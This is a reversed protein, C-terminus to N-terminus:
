VVIHLPPDARAAIRGDDVTVDLRHVGLRIGEVRVSMHSLAPGVGVSGGPVDPAIRLLTRLLQLPAAASWAQPSCAVPYPVPTPVEDRGYGGYLEPLRWGNHEAAELLGTILADADATMGYRALGEIALATDHPWVSGRHYSMPDYGREGAGLTRIGWGANMAPSALMQAVAQGTAHDLAGVWLAHGVNSSAVQLPRDAGDIAMALLRRDANWFREALQARLRDARDSLGHAAGADGLSRELAALEHLARWHYSQVEVLALPGEAQSGDAHVMADSSDKWGQNRLAHDDTDYTLFGDQNHLSNIECWTIAARAAPLLDRIREAPAGWRYVEGLLMVFLPTADVSGYYPQWPELGFIGAHGTRLEHLIKGADEGTAADTTTGQYAALADLTDLAPEPGLLLAEFATLLADRGFLAMYWPAGAAVYSVNRTTPHIWLARLDSVAQDVARQWTHAGHVRLDPTWPDGSVPEPVPHVAMRATGPAGPAATVTWTLAGSADVTAGPASLRVGVDGHSAVLDRGDLRFAAPHVQEDSYGRLAHLNAFDAAVEVRLRLTVPAGFARVVVHEDVNGQVTRDRTLLARQNGDTDVVLHHVLVRGASPTAVALLSMTHNAVTLRVQSLLRRDGHFFGATTGPEVDGRRTSVVVTGGGVATLLDTLTSATM